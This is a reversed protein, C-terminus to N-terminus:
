CWGTTFSGVESPLWGSGTWTNVRWFYRTQRRLGFLQYVNQYRDLPGYGRFTGPAFSPDEGVDLYQQLGAPSAVTWDVRALSCDVGTAPGLRAATTSSCERTSLVATASPEWENIDRTNVRAYHVRNPLLGYWIVGSASGTFPGYGVHTGPAFGNNFLSLDLWQEDGWAPTWQFFVTVTRDPACLQDQIRPPSSQHDPGPVPSPAAAINSGGAAGAALALSLLAAAISRIM